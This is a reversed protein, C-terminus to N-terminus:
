KRSKFLKPYAYNIMVVFVILPLLVCIVVSADRYSIGVSQFSVLFDSSERFLWDSFSSFDEIILLSVLVFSGFIIKLLHKKLIKDALFIYVFPIIIYFVIINMENYSFGSVESLWQLISYVFRFISQM